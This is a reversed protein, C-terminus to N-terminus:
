LIEVIKWDALSYKEWFSIMGFDFSMYLCVLLFFIDCTEVLLLLFLTLSVFFFISCFKCTMSPLEVNLMRDIRYLCFIFVSVSHNTHISTISDFPRWWQMQLDDSGFCIKWMEVDACFWFFIGNNFCIDFLFFLFKNWQGNTHRPIRCEISM